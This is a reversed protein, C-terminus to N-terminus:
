DEIFPVAQSKWPYGDELSYLDLPALSNDTGTVKGTLYSTMYFPSFALDAVHVMTYAAHKVLRGTFTFPALILTVADGTEEGWDLSEQVAALPITAPSSAVVVVDTLFRCAPLLLTAIGLLLLALIRAKM